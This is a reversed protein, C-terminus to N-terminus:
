SELERYCTREHPNAPPTIAPRVTVSEVPRVHVHTASSVPKGPADPAIPFSTTRLQEVGVTASAARTVTPHCHSLIDAFPSARMM